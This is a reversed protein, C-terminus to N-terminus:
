RAAARPTPKTKPGGDPVNEPRDKRPILDLTDRLLSASGTIALGLRHRYVWEEYPTKLKDNILRQGQVVGLILAPSGGVPERVVPGGSNGEFINFDVLFTPVAKAPTLPFSAVAGRRMIPFGVDNSDEAHPYGLTVVADGPGVGGSEIRQDDALMSVPLSVADVGPPLTVPLVALDATPHATWLKKEGRRLPVKTPVPKWTGERDRRRLLLTIQEDPMERFVHAATALITQVHGPTDPDPRSLLFGTGTVGHDTIRFTARMLQVNTLHAPDAVEQGCLMSPTAALAIALIGILKRM